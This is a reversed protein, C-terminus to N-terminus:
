FQILSEALKGNVGITIFYDMDDKLTRGMTDMTINSKKLMNIIDSYQTFLVNHKKHIDHTAIQNKIIAEREDLFKPIGLYAKTKAIKSLVTISHHSIGFHRKRRDKFSIRPICIPVGELDNVADIINGQEIGTFGYKTGTGIIGPGMSVICIDCNLIEKAAILGNYINICELDGGFAHGITITGDIYGEKKLYRVTKSFDIPLAGGDTMIYAISLRTNLGKLVVTLPALVSHLGGILVPMGKLSNFENFVHHYKSGQEEVSNVRIQIPTYRLKMIHGNKMSQKTTKKLNALVFHYGGSGLKLDQATTNLIIENGEEINDILSKYAIAKELKGNINVIIEMSGERADIIKEVIGTKLNLM